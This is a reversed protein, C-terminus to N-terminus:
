KKCTAFINNPIYVYYAEETDIYDMPAIRVLIKIKNQEEKKLFMSAICQMDEIIREDTTKNNNKWVDFLISHEKDKVLRMNYFYGDVQIQDNYSKEPIQKKLEFLDIENELMELRTLKYPRTWYNDTKSIFKIHNKIFIGITVLIILAVIIVTTKKNLFKKNLVNEEKLAINPFIEQETNDQTTSEKANFLNVGALVSLIILPTLPIGKREALIGYHQCTVSLIIYILICLIFLFWRLIISCNKKHHQMIFIPIASIGILICMIIFGIILKLIFEM